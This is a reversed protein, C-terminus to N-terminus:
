YREHLLRWQPSGEEPLEIRDALQKGKACLSRTSSEESVKPKVKVFAMYARLDVSM